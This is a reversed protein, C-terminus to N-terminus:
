SRESQHTWNPSNIKDDGEGGGKDVGFAGRLLINNLKNVNEQM